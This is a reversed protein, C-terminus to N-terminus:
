PTEQFTAATPEKDGFPVYIFSVSVEDSQDDYIFRIASLPPTPLLKGGQFPEAEWELGYVAAIGDMNGDHGFNLSSHDSRQFLDRLTLDLLWTSEIVKESTVDM